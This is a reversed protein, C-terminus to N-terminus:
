DRGAGLQEEVWRRPTGYCQGHVCASELLAGERQLAEFEPVAVFHYSTGQVEGPRPARTTITVCRVPAGPQERLQALVTDKGVGSPGSVVFLLGRRRLGTAAGLGAPSADLALLNALDSAM